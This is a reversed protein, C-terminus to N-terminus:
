NHILTYTTTYKGLMVSSTKTILKMDRDGNSKGNSKELQARATALLTDLANFVGSKPKKEQITAITTVEALAPVCHPFRTNRDNGTCLDFDKPVMANQREQLREIHFSLEGDVTDRQDLLRGIYTTMSSRLDSFHGSVNMLKLHPIKDDIERTLYFTKAKLLQILRNEVVNLQKELNDINKLMDTIQQPSASDMKQVLIDVAERVTCM